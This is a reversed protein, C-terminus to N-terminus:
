KKSKGLLMKKRAKEFIYEEKKQKSGQFNCLRTVLLSTLWLIIVYM